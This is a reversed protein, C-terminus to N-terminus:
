EVKPLNLVKSILDRVTESYVKWANEDSKDLNLYEPDFLGEFEYVTVYTRPNMVIFIYQTEKDM